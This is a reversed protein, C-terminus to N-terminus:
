DPVKRALWAKMSNLVLGEQPWTLWEIRAVGTQRQVFANLAAMTRERVLQADALQMWLAWMKRQTQTLPTRVPKARPAMGSAKLCSQLHALFRKRGTFDLDAASRAGACITAMLDRYEDDSLSLKAKAVHIAALDAKRAGEQVKM